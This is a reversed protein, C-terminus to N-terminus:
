CIRKKNNKIYAVVEEVTEKSGGYTVESANTIVIEGGEAEKVVMQTIDGKADVTTAVTREEKGVDNYSTENYTVSGDKNTVQEVTSNVININSTYTGKVKISVNDDELKGETVVEDDAFTVQDTGDYVKDSASIQSITVPKKTISATTSYQQGKAALEYKGADKGTM